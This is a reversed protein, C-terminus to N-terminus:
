SRLCGFLWVGMYGFLYINVCGVGGVCTCCGLGGAGWVAQPPLAPHDDVGRDGGHQGEDPADLEEPCNM